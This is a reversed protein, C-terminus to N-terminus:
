PSRKAPLGRPAAPSTVGTWVPRDGDLVQDVVARFETRFRSAAFRGAQRRCFEPSFTAEREIFDRVCAAIAEPNPRDFFLGTVYEVVTERAGGRRLALVPTGEAQAEVPVIGFDEEAAFVFARARAMLRRLEADSVFGAFSVNPPAIARLHQALPGDGAVVLRLDPMTAFARVIQEINKYPVLRSAAFFYDDRAVPLSQESLNVPPHIVRAERGYTKRIRRAIFASNAILVDPGNATRTDWMRLWHLVIRALAGKLGRAMGAQALYAHQLDWAYRMPSHVYAIHIQDPGTLVGKAVAASSSIVLDYDSLDFQEVAITMLPLYLRHHRAIGPMKQLFSTHVRGIGLKEHDEPRMTDFITFVDAGPYCTLLEKLVQEAGGVVYLWDHVIAIKM